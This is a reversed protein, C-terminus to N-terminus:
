ALGRVLAVTIAATVMFTGVAVLSRPSGRSLGCVGHGSTCGNALTTGIGVLLGAVALVPLRASPAGVHAPAVWRAALGVAVLGVLFWLRFARGGDDDQDFARGVLGSIGAVRGHALLAISAALGILAGGLLGAVM